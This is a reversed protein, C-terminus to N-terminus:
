EDYSDLSNMESDSESTSESKESKEGKENESAKKSKNVCFSIGLVLLGIMSSFLLSYVVSLRVSFQPTQDDSNKDVEKVFDPKVVGYYIMLVIFSIFTGFIAYISPNM